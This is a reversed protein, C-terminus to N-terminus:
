TKAKTGFVVFKASPRSSIVILVKACATFSIAQLHSATSPFLLFKSVIAYIPGLLDGDCRLVSRQRGSEWYGIKPVPYNNNSGGFCTVLDTSTKFSWLGQGKILILRSM